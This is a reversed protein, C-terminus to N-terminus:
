SSVWEALGGGDADALACLHFYISIHHGFWVLYSMILGTLPNDTRCLGDELRNQRSSMGCTEMNRSRCFDRAGCGDGGLVRKAAMEKWHTFSAHWPAM